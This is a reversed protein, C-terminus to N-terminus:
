GGSGLGGRNDGCLNTGTEQDFVQLKTLDFDLYVMQGPAPRCDRPAEVRLMDPGVKVTVITFDGLGEALVVEGACTPAPEEERVELRLGLHLPRLGLVVERGDQRGLADAAPGPSLDVAFGAAALRVGGAAASVRGPVCNMAPEGVFDAVFLNGPRDFIRGPTDIQQLVGGEMVAIRDAMAMAEIQDHTVFIITIGKVKHLRKLEGRLQSRQKADLHSLPEDMLYVSAPRVLARAFSVRQQQGGSLHAPRRDLVEGIQLIEAIERVRQDIERTAVGRIRLPFAINEFASLHPYLAYAEFAMAIDRNRPELDNVRTGDILIEGASTNELGAVMRLTSTKGCGSPGLLALFEGPRCELSLDKVAEVAGYRKWVHRVVVSGM